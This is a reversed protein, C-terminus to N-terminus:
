LLVNNVNLFGKTLTVFDHLFRPKVINVIEFITEGMHIPQFRGRNDLIYAQLGQVIMNYIEKPFGVATPKVIRLEGCDESDSM